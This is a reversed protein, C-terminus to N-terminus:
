LHSNVNLIREGKNKRYLFVYGNYLEALHPEAGTLPVREQVPVVWPVRSDDAPRDQNTEQRDSIDGEDPWYWYEGAFVIMMKSINETHDAVERQSEDRSGHAEPDVPGHQRCDVLSLVAM